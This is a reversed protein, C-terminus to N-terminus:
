DVFPHTWYYPMGYYGYTRTNWASDNYDPWTNREFFVENTLKAKDVNLVYGPTAEKSQRILSWPVTALKDGYGAWTGIDVVGYAVKGSNPHLLLEEIEGIKDAKQNWLENGIVQSARVLKMGKFREPKMGFYNLTTANWDDTIVPWANKGFHPATKLKAKEADLVFSTTDKDSQKIHKWPVAVLEEGMGLWGGIAVVAYAIGGDNEDFYFDDIEGIHDATQNFLKVGVVQSGKVLKGTLPKDAQAFAGSTALGLSLCLALTNNFLIKM